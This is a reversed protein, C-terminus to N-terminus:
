MGKTRDDLEMDDKTRDTGAQDKDHRNGFRRFPRLFAKRSRMFASPEVIRHVAMFRQTPVCYKCSTGNKAAGEEIDATHSMIPHNALTSPQSDPFVVDLASLQDPKATPLDILPAHCGRRRNGKAEHEYTM